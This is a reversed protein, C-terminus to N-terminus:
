RSNSRLLPNCPARSPRQRVASGPNAASRRITGTGYSPASAPMRPVSLPADGAKTNGANPVSEPASGNELDLSTSWISPQWEDGGEQERSPAHAESRAVIAAEHFGQYPRSSRMQLFDSVADSGECVTVFADFEHAVRRPGAFYADRASAARGDLGRAPVANKTQEM